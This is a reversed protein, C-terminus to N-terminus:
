NRIFSISDSVVLASEPRLAPKKSRFPFRQRIWDGFSSENTLFGDLSAVSNNICHNIGIAALNIKKEKVAWTLLRVAVMDDCDTGWDTGM